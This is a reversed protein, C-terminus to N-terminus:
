DRKPRPLDFVFKEPENESEKNIARHSHLLQNTIYALVAARRPSVRGKAVQAVLRALFKQVDEGYLFDTPEPLLDPSLDESDSPSPPLAVAPNSLRFHHGCLGAQSESASQRCRKGNAFRHLCRSPVPVSSAVTAPSPAEPKPTESILIEVDASQTTM